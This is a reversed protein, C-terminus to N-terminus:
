LSCKPWAIKSTEKAFYNHIGREWTFLQLVNIPCVMLNIQEIALAVNTAQFGSTRFSQLLAHYDVKSGSEDPKSFQYGSVKTTFEEPNPSSKVFLNQTVCEPVAGSAEPEKNSM